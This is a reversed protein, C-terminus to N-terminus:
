AIAGSASDSQFRRNSIDCSVCRRCPVLSDGVSVGEYSNVSATDDYSACALCPVKGGGGQIDYGCVGLLKKAPPDRASRVNLHKKPQWFNKFSKRSIGPDCVQTNKKAHQSNAGQHHPFQASRAALEAHIMLRVRGSDTGNPPCVLSFLPKPSTAARSARGLFRLIPLHATTHKPWGEGDMSETATPRMM